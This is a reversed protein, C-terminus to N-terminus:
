KVKYARLGFAAFDRDGDEGGDGDGDGDEYSKMLQKM